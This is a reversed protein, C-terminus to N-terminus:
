LTTWLGAADTERPLKDSICSKLGWGLGVSDPSRCKILIGLHNELM